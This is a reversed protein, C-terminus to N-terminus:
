ESAGKPLMPEYVPVPGSMLDDIADRLAEREALDAPDM